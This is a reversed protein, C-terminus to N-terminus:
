ETVPQLLAIIESVRRACYRRTLRAIGSDLRHETDALMDGRSFNLIDVLLEVQENSLIVKM